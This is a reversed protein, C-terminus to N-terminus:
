EQGGHTVWIRRARGQKQSELTHLSQRQLPPCPYQTDLVIRSYCRQASLCPFINHGLTGLASHLSQTHDRSPCSRPSLELMRPIATTAQCETAGRHKHPCHARSATLSSGSELAGKIEGVGSSSCLLPERM